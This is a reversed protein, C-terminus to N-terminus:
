RTLRPKDRIPSMGNLLPRANMRTGKYSRRCAGAGPDSKGDSCSGDRVENIAETTHNASNQSPTQSSVSFAPSAQPPYVKVAHNLSM